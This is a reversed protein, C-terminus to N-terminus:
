GSSGAPTGSVTGSVPVEPYGRLVFTGRSRPEGALQLDPFSEFLATLSEALEMRALPAGVIEIISGFSVEVPVEFLPLGRARCAAM